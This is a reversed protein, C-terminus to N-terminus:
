SEVVKKKTSPQLNFGLTFLGFQTTRGIGRIQFIESVRRSKNCNCKESSQPKKREVFTTGKNQAFMAAPIKLNSFRILKLPHFYAAFKRGDVTTGENTDTSKTARSEM